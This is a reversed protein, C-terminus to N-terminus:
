EVYHIASKKYKANQSEILRQKHAEISKKAQDITKNCIYNSTLDVTGYTSIYIDIRDEIYAFLRWLASAYTPIFRSEGNANKHETIQYTYKFPNYM